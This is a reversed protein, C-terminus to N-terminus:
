KNMFFIWDFVSDNLDSVLRLLISPPKVKLHGDFRLEDVYNIKSCFETMSVIHSDVFRGDGKYVSTVFGDANLIKYLYDARSKSVGAKTYVNIWPQNNERNLEHLLADCCVKDLDDM